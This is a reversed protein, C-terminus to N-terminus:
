MDFINDNILFIYFVRDEFDPEDILEACEIEYKKGATGNGLSFANDM